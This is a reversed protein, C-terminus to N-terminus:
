RPAQSRRAASLRPALQPPGVRRSRFIRRRYRLFFLLVCALVGLNVGFLVELEHSTWRILARTRAKTRTQTRTRNPSSSANPNFGPNPNHNPNPNPNPNPM